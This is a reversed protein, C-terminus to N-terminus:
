GVDSKQGLGEGRDRHGQTLVAEGHSRNYVLQYRKTKNLDLRFKEM